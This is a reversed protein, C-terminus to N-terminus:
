IADMTGFLLAHRELETWMPAECGQMLLDSIKGEFVKGCQDNLHIDNYFFSYLMNSSVSPLYAHIHEVAYMLGGETIFQSKPFMMVDGVQLYILKRREIFVNLLLYSIGLVKVVDSATYYGGDKELRDIMREEVSKLKIRGEM